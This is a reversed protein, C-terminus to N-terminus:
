SDESVCWLPTNSLIKSVTLKQTMMHTYQMNMTYEGNVTDERIMYIQM